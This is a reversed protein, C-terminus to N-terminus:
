SPPPLIGCTSAPPTSCDWETCGTKVLDVALGGTGTGKMTIGQSKSVNGFESSLGYIGWVYSDGAFNCVDYTYVYEGAYPLDEFREIITGNGYTLWYTITSTTSGTDLYDTVLTVYNETGGIHPEATLSITINDAVNPALATATTSLIYVFQLQTPHVEKTESIGDEPKSFTMHYTGSAIMPFVVTGQDDSVDSLLTAAMPTAASSVQFMENLWNTNSISSSTMNATVAVGSLVNGNRDVLAFQIQQPYLPNAGAMTVNSATYSGSGATINRNKYSYGGSNSANLFVRYTTTNDYSHMPNQTTDTPASWNLDGSTVNAWDYGPEDGFFWQWGTPTNSSSDLFQTSTPYSLYGFNAVPAPPIIPSLYKIIVVGTGGKSQAAGGDTAAGGGGTDDSAPIQDNTGTPTSEGQGGGGIGGYGGRGSGGVTGGFGGGGGGYKNNEGTLNNTAGAGGNGGITGTGTGGAALKGGGGGGAGFLSGLYGSGGGNGQNLEYNGGYNNASTSAHGGGGSGGPQGVGIGDLGGYGGGVATLLGLVSDQGNGTTHDGVTIPIVTEPTAAEGGPPSAIVGGAGGGGGGIGDGGNGGAAVVLYEINYVDAPITFSTSGTSNYKLVTYSGVTTKYHDGEITWTPDITLPYIIGSKDYELHLEQGDWSYWMDVPQGIADIGYPQETLFGVMTNGNNADVVKWRGTDTWPIMKQGEPIVIPFSLEMDKQLVITEKVEGVSYTYTFEADVEGTPITKKLKLPKLIPDLFEPVPEDVHHKYKVDGNTEEVVVPEFLNGNVKTKTVISMGSAVDAIRMSGGAMDVSTKVDTAIGDAKLPIKIKPTAPTAVRIQPEVVPTIVPAQGLKKVVGKPLETPIVVPTKTPAVTAQSFTRNKPDPLKVTTAGAVNVLLLMAVIFLVFFKKM